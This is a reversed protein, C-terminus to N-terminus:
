RAVWAARRPTRAPTYLARAPPQRTLWGRQILRTRAAAYSVRFARQVTRVMRAAANSGLFVPQPRESRTGLAERVTREVATAPMLVAGSAYGAQWELWDAAGATVITRRYCTVVAPAEPHQPRPRASAGSTSSSKGGGSFLFTHLAVHGLEHALTSRLRPERAPTEALAAAIRVRPKGGAVFETVGEVDAGGAGFDAYLDLDGAVQEVLVTLDDTELPYAVGHRRRLFDAVLTECEREIEEPDYHPRTALRGSRDAVWRM